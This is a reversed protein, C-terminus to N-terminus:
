SESLSERGRKYQAGSMQWIVFAMMISVLTDDVNYATTLVYSSDAGRVYNAV